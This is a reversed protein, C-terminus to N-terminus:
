CYKKSELYKQEQVNVAEQRDNSNSCVLCKLCFGMSTVLLVSLTLPELSFLFCTTLLSRDKFGGNSQQLLSLVTIPLELFHM